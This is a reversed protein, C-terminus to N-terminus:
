RAELVRRVDLLHHQVEHAARRALLYVTRRDGESGIGVRQWAEPSAADLVGGLRDVVASLAQLSADVDRENYRDRDCAKTFDYAALAPEDETLVRTIRDAYFQLGPGMHVTYELASWTTPAPRRQLATRDYGALQAAFREPGSRIIALVDARSAADSAFGCEACDAL